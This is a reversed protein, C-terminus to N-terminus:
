KDMMLSNWTKGWDEADKHDNFEKSINGDEFYIGGWVGWEKGSVATAFCTKNFPCSQCFTDVADRLEKSGEEYSDFFIEQPKKLCPASDKWLYRGM